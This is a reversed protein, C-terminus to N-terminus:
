AVVARPAILLCCWYYEQPLHVPPAFRHAAVWCGARSLSLSCDRGEVFSRWPVAFGLRQKEAGIRSTVSVNTSSKGSKQVRGTCRQWDAHTSLTRSQFSNYYLREFTICDALVRLTCAVVIVTDTQIHTHTYTHRQRCKNRTSRAGPSSDGFIM